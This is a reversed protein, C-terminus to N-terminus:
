WCNLKSRKEQLSFLMCINFYKLLTQTFLLKCFGMDPNTTKGKTPQQSIANKPPPPPDRPAQRVGVKPCSCLVHGPWLASQVPIQQIDEHSKAFLNHLHLHLKVRMTCREVWTILPFPSNVSRTVRRHVPM